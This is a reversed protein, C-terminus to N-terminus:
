ASGICLELTETQTSQSFVCTRLVRTSANMTSDLLRTGFRLHKTEEKMAEIKDLVATAFAEAATGVLDPNPAPAAAPAKGAPRSGSSGGGSGGGGGQGASSKSEGTQRQGSRNRRQAVGTPMVKTSSSM